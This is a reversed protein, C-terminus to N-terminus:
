TPSGSFKKKAKEYATSAAEISVFHGLYKTEGDIIIRARYRGNTGRSIGKGLKGIVAKDAKPLDTVKDPYQCLKKENKDRLLNPSQWVNTSECNLCAISAFNFIAIKGVILCQREFRELGIEIHCKKCNFTRNSFDKKNNPM